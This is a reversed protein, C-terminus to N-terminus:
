PAPGIGAVKPYPRAEWVARLGCIFRTLREVGIGFGATKLPYFDKLMELLWRYKNPDEGSERIRAIVKIPEYEREGGSIAEGFGEPYLMDFDRLYGPKGPDERNYFGRSGKPYQYIFIPADHYASLVKECEWLIETNSPNRCGLKNVLEVAEAHTYRLFPPKYDPLSRGMKELDKGHVDKIYRTVYAFLGEAVKMADDLTGNLIELDVQFFEVLHRGTFVSDNPELRINPSVFYVKGLVAAMYQKYLIASSMVKYEHGYFDITAQKAGRIGPDTVPGIIPPLAEIFGQSDLYERIARLISAQIKFVTVYKDEKAWRWSHKVWEEIFKIYSEKDKVMAEFELVAPNVKGMNGHGM